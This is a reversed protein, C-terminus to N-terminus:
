KENKDEYDKQARMQEVAENIADEITKLSDTLMSYGIAAGYEYPLNKFEKNLKRLYSAIQKEQYGILYVLFENGDTRMIDSNDLQTKILVNAASKIQKDGEDYGLTDNIEQVSNLDIVITTQPYITNKNWSDINESLYNRNKLSTLQDIFRMKDEKKIRKVVRVKRTTRYAIYGALFLIGFFYLAYRAFTGAVTGSKLAADHEKIGLSQMEHPNLYKFYPKMLESLTKSKVRFSYTGGADASYRVTYDALLTKQYYSFVNSDMAIIENSDVLDKLEKETEYTSVVIGGVTKLYDEIPTSALVYINKDIFGRSSNSSLLEGKKAVVVYNIPLGSDVGILARNNYGFLIDIDSNNLAKMLSKNNKYKSIKVDIGSFDSFKKLYASAIGGHNGSTLLEYPSTNIFGYNYNTSLLSDMDKKQIELSETFVKLEASKISKYLAKKSWNNYYKVLINSFVSDDTEMVYHLSVEPLHYLIEYGLSLIDSIYMIRPVLIYGVESAEKFNEFLDESNEYEIINIESIDLYKRIQESDKELIGVNGNLNALGSVFENQLGVLVFHDTFFVIDKDNYETTIKLSLGDVVSDGNYTVPNVIIDHETEFDKIFDYFVGSGSIGFINTDNIVNIEPLGRNIANNNIWEKEALTLRNENGLLSLTGITILIISIIVGLPIFIKQKNKV